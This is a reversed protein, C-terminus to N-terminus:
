EGPQDYTIGYCAEQEKMLEDYCPREEDEFYARSNEQIDPPPTMFRTFDECSLAATCDLLAAHEWRCDGTWIPIEVCGQVCEAETEHHGAATPDDPHCPDYLQSCRAACRPEPDPYADVKPQSCAVVAACSSVIGVLREVSSRYGKRPM